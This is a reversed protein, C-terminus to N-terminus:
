KWSPGVCSASNNQGVQCITGTPAGSENVHIFEENLKADTFYVGNGDRLFTSICDYGESNCVLTFDNYKHTKNYERIAQMNAPTLTFSYESEKYADSNNREIVQQTYAGKNTLWNRGPNRSESLYHKGSTDNLSNPFVDYLSIPRYFYTIGGPNTGGPGGGPRGTSPDPCDECIDEYVDYHCVFENSYGLTEFVSTRGNYSSAGTLRGLRNNDNYQGINRYNLTYQYQGEPTTVRVPFVRGVRTYNDAIKRTAMAGTSQMTYFVTAPKYSASISATKNVNTNAPFVETTSYCGSNNCTPYTYSKTKSTVSCSAGSCFEEDLSSTRSDEAEVFQNNSGILNNMYYDEDYSYTIDPDFEYNNNWSSCMRYYNKANELKQLATRYERYAREWEGGYEEEYAEEPYTNDCKAGSGGCECSSEGAEGYPGVTESHASELLEGTSVDYIPYTFKKEKRQVRCTKTSHPVCAGTCPAPSCPDRRCGSDYTAESVDDVEVEQYTTGVLQMEKKKANTFSADDMKKLRIYANYKRVVDKSYNELDESFKAQAIETSKCTRTGKLSTSLVFYSGARINHISGPMKIEYDEKCAVQCYPNDYGVDSINYPNGAQDQNNFICRNFDDSEEIYQTTGSDTCSPSTIMPACPRTLEPPKCYADWIAADDPDNRDLENCCNYQDSTFLEADFKDSGPTLREDEFCHLNCVAAYQAYNQEESGLDIKFHDPGYYTKTGDTNTVISCAPPLPFSFTLLKKVPLPEKTSESFMLMRQTRSSSAYDCKNTGDTAVPCAVFVNSIGSADTATVSFNFQPQFASSANSMLTSKSIVMKMEFTTADNHNWNYITDDSPKNLFEITDYLNGWKEVKANKVEGEISGMGSVKVNFYVAFSGSEEKVEIKKSDDVEIKIDSQTLEEKNTNVALKFMQLANAIIFQNSDEKTHLLGVVHIDSAYNDFVGPVYGNLIAEYQAGQGFKYFGTAEAASKGLAAFTAAATSIKYIPFGKSDIWVSGAPNNSDLDQEYKFHTALMRIAIQTSLFNNDNGAAGNKQYEQYIRILGRHFGDDLNIDESKCYQVAYGGGSQHGPGPLNPDLCFSTYDSTKYNYASVGQCAWNCHSSETLSDYSANTCFCYQVPSGTKDYVRVNDSGLIYRKDDVCTTGFAKVYSPAFFVSVLLVFIIIKKKLKIM